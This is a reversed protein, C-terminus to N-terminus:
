LWIEVEDWFDIYDADSKLKHIIANIKSFKMPIRSKLKGLRFKLKEDESILEDVANGNISVILNGGIAQEYNVKLM